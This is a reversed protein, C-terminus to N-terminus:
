PTTVVGGESLRGTRSAMSSSPSVASIRLYRGSDIAMSSNNKLVLMVVPMLTASARPTIKNAAM